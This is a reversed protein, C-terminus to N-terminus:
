PSFLFLTAIKKVKRKKKRLCECMVVVGPAGSGPDRSDVSFYVLLSSYNSAKLARAGPQQSLSEAEANLEFYLANIYTITGLRSFVYHVFRTYSTM